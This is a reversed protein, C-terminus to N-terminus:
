REMGIAIIEEEIEECVFCSCVALVGRQYDYRYQFSLRITGDRGRAFGKYVADRELGNSDTHPKMDADASHSAM